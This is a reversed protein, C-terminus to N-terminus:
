LYSSELKDDQCQRLPYLLQGLLRNRGLLRAKALFDYASNCLSSDEPKKQDLLRLRILEQRIASSNSTHDM